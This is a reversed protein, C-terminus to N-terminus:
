STTFVFFAIQSSQQFSIPFHEKYIKSNNNTNNYTSYPLIFGVTPNCETLDNIHTCKDPFESQDASPTLAAAM